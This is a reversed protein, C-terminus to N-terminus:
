PKDRFFDEVSKAQDPTALNVGMTKKLWDAFKERSSDSAAVALNLMIAGVDERVRPDPDRRMRPLIRMADAAPMQGSVTLGELDGAFALREPGELQRYGKELLAALLDKPLVSRYYGSGYANPWIWTPSSSLTLEAHSSSIVECRRDLGEAHFCVPITWPDERQEIEVKTTGGATALSMRLVPVGPRDLFGLLVPGVDVGSEQQIARALDSSTANAFQHDTLYRHLSRQLNEPGLWDELMKLISAGKIYVIGSYVGDTDKRSRMDLRVPRSQATDSMMMNDRLETSGLNKEFAPLDTDSIKAELWTAFGESLWVDNWWQQTVLNGFWQHTLEHTMTQRMARQRLQTDENPPALLIRDRYTILGPNETAGFPLDLLALHDLKDWPYPIGTYQELRALIEPTATKAAAAEAARGHPTIIRVPIRNQGAGGADVVDFPGVAFAVVESPLPQTPAFTVRKMGDPEEETSLERANAVAVDTRKVHLTVQWPTKYGPEDFCPFARRADIPTFSTYVYWDSGSQKRYAGVNLKDDLKGKYRIEIQLPGPGQAEGLELALFEESLRWKAAQSHGASQVHVDQITLDKANLWVIDTREKLDVDIRASGHFVPESPLITLDLQYHTPRATTPLRFNPAAPEGAPLASAVTLITVFLTASRFTRHLCMAPSYLVRKASRILNVAAAINGPFQQAVPM